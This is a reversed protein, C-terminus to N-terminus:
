QKNYIGNFRAALEKYESETLELPGKGDGFNVYGYYKANPNQAASASYAVLIVIKKDKSELFREKRLREEEEEKLRVKEAYEKRRQEIAARREMFDREKKDDYQKLKESEVKRREQRALYAQRREERIRQWNLAREKASEDKIKAADKEIQYFVSKGSGGTTPSQYASDAAQQRKRLEAEAAAEAAQKIRENERYLSDAKEKRLREAEEAQAKKVMQENLARTEAELKKREAEAKDAAAKDNRLRENLSYLSDSEKKRQLEALKRLEEDKYKKELAAAQAKAEADQRERQAAAAEAATKADAEAKARAEAEAKQRSAADAAAREADEAKKRALEEERLKRKEEEEKSKQEELWRKQEGQKAKLTNRFAEEAVMDRTFDGVSKDFFLRSVSTQYAEDLPGNTAKPLSMNFALPELIEEKSDAPLNTEVKIRKTVCGPISFELEYNSDFPLDAEYKGTSGPFVEQYFKGDRYIKVSGASSAGGEGKVIGTVTIGKEPEGYVDWVQQANLITCPLVLLVVM